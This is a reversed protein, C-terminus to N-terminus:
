SVEEEERMHPLFDHTFSELLEKLRQGYNVRDQETKKEFGDKIFGLM